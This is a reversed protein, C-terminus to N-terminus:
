LNLFREAAFDQLDQSWANITFLIIVLVTEKLIVFASVYLELPASGSYILLTSRRMLVAFLLVRSFTAKAANIPEQVLFAAGVNLLKICQLLKCSCYACWM